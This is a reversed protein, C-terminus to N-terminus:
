KVIRCAKFLRDLNEYSDERGSLVSNIRVTQSAHIMKGDGLYIGVHTIRRTGDDRLPGFFLLDGPLVSALDITGDAKLIVIDEGAAYQQSANRPLEIGAMGYCIRVLGSCDVGKSSMGGWLYPVGLFRKAEQVAKARRDKISAKEDASSVAAKEVWGSNGDPLTVMRFHGKSKSADRLYDGLVLDCLTQAKADPRSYVFSHMATVMLKPAKMYADYAAPTMTAVAMENVWATYPQTTEVKLWYRDRELIKVPRGMLEQTELASEYDPATRLYAASINVVAMDQANLLISAFLSLVILKTRM